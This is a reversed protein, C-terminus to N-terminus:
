SQKSKKFLRSFRQTFSDFDFIGQDTTARYTLWISLPLMIFTSLWTAIFPHLAGNEASNKAFVGIFHYTLFLLLAVVMPLGMGGKRIIAGLPAGVFFLIICAISLAFKENLAIEYKNLRRAKIFFEKKKSKATQVASKISNHAMTAIQSQQKISYKSFLTDLPLYQHTVTDKQKAFKPFGTRNHMNNYFRKIDKSFSQSLSDIETILEKTNFMNQNSIKNEKDVDKNNLETLDINLTYEKFKSKVFPKRKQKKFDKTIVEDYYYGDILKLSLTNSDEASILEGSKSVIQTLNANPKVEKKKHIVVNHLFEGKEGTKESVKINFADGIQSFQGEAIAMSPKLKAINKRLNVFKYQATPIVNNAFFFVTISLLLIFVILSKMARQLSIGTSKMAAFEYNEALSGFVMISAVLITLPLILPILTPTVYLLFKLIISLDLDRGALESIYLWVSQLVFIFM